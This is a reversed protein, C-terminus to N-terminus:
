GDEDDPTAEDQGDHEELAALVGTVGGEVAVQSATIRRSDSATGERTGPQSCGALYCTAAGNRASERGTCRQGQAGAATPVLLLWCTRSGCRAIAGAPGVFPPARHSEEVPDLTPELPRDVPEERAGE